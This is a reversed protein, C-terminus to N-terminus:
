RNRNPSSAVERRLGHIGEDGGDLEEIQDGQLHWPILVVKRTGAHRFLEGDDRSGQFDLVEEIM